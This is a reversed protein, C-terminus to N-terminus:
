KGGPDGGKPAGSGIWARYANVFEWARALVQSQTAVTVVDGCYDLARAAAVAQQREDRVLIVRRPLKRDAGASPKAVVAGCVYHVMADLRTGDLAAVLLSATAARRVLHEPPEAEEWQGGPPEPEGVAEFLLGETGALAKVQALAQSAWDPRRLWVVLGPIGRVARFARRVNPDEAHVLISSLVRDVGANGGCEVVQTALLWRPLQVASTSCVPIVAKGLGHAFGLEFVVDPRLGEVDGVVLSADRIRRRVEPAWPVGGVVRGDTVRFKNPGPLGPVAVDLQDRLAHSGAEDFRYAVFVSKTVPGHGSSGRVQAEPLAVTICAASTPEWLPDRTRWLLVPSVEAARLPAGPVWPDGAPPCMAGCRLAAELFGHTWGAQGFLTRQGADISLLVPGDLAAGTGVAERRVLTVVSRFEPHYVGLGATAAAMQNDRLRGLTAELDALCWARGAEAASRVSGAFLELATRASDRSLAAVWAQVDAPVGDFQDERQARVTDKIFAVWEESRPEAGLHYINYQDGPLRGGTGDAIARGAPGPRTATLVVCGTGQDMLALAPFLAPPVVMDARDLLLLVQLPGAADAVLARLAVPDPGDRFRELPTAVVCRRTDSMAAVDRPDAGRLHSPLSEALLDRDVDVEKRALRGAIALALLSTAKAALLVSV